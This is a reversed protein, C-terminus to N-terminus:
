AGEEARKLAAVVEAQTRSPSDNWDAPTDEVIRRLALRVARAADLEDYAAIICGLACRAVARESRAGVPRGAADRAFAGQTWGMEAYQWAKM